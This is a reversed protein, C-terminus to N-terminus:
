IKQGVGHNPTPNGATSLPPPTVEVQRPFNSWGVVGRLKFFSFSNWWSILTSQLPCLIFLTSHKKGMTKLAFTHDIQTLFKFWFFELSSLLFQEITEAWGRPHSQCPFMVVSSPGYLLKVELGGGGSPWIKQHTMFRRGVWCPPTTMDDISLPLPASCKPVVGLWVGELPFNEALKLYM